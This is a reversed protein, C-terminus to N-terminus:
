KVEGLAGCDKLAETWFEGIKKSLKWTHDDIVYKYHEKMEGTAQHHKVRLSLIEERSYM